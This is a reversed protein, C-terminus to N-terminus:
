EPEKLTMPLGAMMMTVRDCAGAVEQNLRGLADVFARVERGLPIVGLGIENGVLVLPGASGKIAELLDDVAPDVLPMADMPGSVPMLLNTLWLTLCDVLVLTEPSAHQRIVQALAISEEVTSMAPVRVARDNRHREIRARMEDDHAHATAVLVARHAPSQSLWAAALQEGRRSKGSRQGGLILERRAISM